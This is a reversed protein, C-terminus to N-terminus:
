VTLKELLRRITKIHKVLKHPKRKFPWAVLQIQFNSVMFLMLSWEPSLHHVVNQEYMEFKVQKEYKEQKEKKGLKPKTQPKLIM